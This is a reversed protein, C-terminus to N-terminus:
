YSFEMMRLENGELEGTSSWQEDQASFLICASGTDHDGEKCRRRLEASRAPSLRYRWEFGPDQFGWQRFSVLSKPGAVVEGIHEAQLRAPQLIFADATNGLCLLAYGSCVILLYGVLGGAGGPSFGHRRGIMQVPLAAVLLVPALVILVLLMYGM